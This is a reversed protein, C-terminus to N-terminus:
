VSGLSQGARNFGGRVSTGVAHCLNSSAFRGVVDLRLAYTMSRKFPTKVTM